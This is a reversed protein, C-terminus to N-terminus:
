EIETVKSGRSFSGAEFGKSKAYMDVFLQVPLISGVSFLYEDQEDIVIEFINNNSPLAKKNTILMVRGGFGAIDEAMRNTQDFTNGVASFVIARFGETVMEM